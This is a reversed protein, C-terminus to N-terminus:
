LFFIDFPFTLFYLFSFFTTTCTLFLTPTHTLSGLYMSFFNIFSQIPSFNKKEKLPSFYWIKKELIWQSFTSHHLFILSLFKSVRFILISLSTENKFTFFAKQLHTLLLSLFLFFILHLFILEQNSM